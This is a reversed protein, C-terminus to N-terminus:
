IALETSSLEQELLPEAWKTEEIRAALEAQSDSYMSTPVPSPRQGPASQWSKNEAGWQLSWHPDLLRRHKEWLGTNVDPNSELHQLLRVEHQQQSIQQQRSLQLAIDSLDRLLLSHAKAVEDAFAGLSGARQVQGNSVANSCNGLLERSNENSLHSTDTALGNRPSPAPLLMQRSTGQLLEDLKEEIRGLSNALTVSQAQVLEQIMRANRNLMRNHTLQSVVGLKRLDISEIEHIVTCLRQYSVEGDSSEAQLADLIALLDQSGIDAFALVQRIEPSNEFADEIEKRSMTGSADHDFSSINKLLELRRAEKQYHKENLVREKNQERADVSRDVVVALILNMIGMAIFVFVLPLLMGIVPAKEIVPISIQGWSDGAVTQQFLTLVSQAVSQFGKSCRECDPFDIGVSIHHIFQVLIISCFVLAVGLMLSGFFMARISGALGAVFMHIEPVRSASNAVRVLRWLRFIRLWSLQVFNALVEAAVGMTCITLDLLNDVRRFYRLRAVFIKLAAEISYFFLLTLNVVRLWFINDGNTPCNPFNDEYDPYCQAEADTQYVVLVLNSLIVVTVLNDFWSSFVFRAFEKRLGTVRGNHNWWPLKQNSTLSEKTFHTNAAKLADVKAKQLHELHESDVPNFSDSFPNLNQNTFLSDRKDSLHRMQRHLVGPDQSLISTGSTQRNIDDYESVGSGAQSM